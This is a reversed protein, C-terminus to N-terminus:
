ILRGINLRNQGHCYCTFSKGRRIEVRSDKKMRNAEGRGTLIPLSLPTTTNLQGDAHCCWLGKRSWRPSGGLTSCHPQLTYSFQTGPLAASLSQFIFWYCTSLVWQLRCSGLYQRLIQAASTCVSFDQPFSSQCVFQNESESVLM